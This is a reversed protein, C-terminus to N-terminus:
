DLAFVRFGVAVLSPAQGSEAKAYFGRRGEGLSQLVAKLEDGSVPKRAAYQSYDNCPEAVALGELTTVEEDRPGRIELGRGLDSLSIPRDTKVVIQEGAAGPGLHSGYQAVVQKILGTFTILLDNKRNRNHSEPHAVHHLDLVWRGDLWGLAGGDEVQLREVKVVPSPNYGAATIIPESVIHVSQVTGLFREAM